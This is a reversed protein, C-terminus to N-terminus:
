EIETCCADLIQGKCLVQSIAIILVWIRPLCFFIRGESALTPTSSTERTRTALLPMYIM